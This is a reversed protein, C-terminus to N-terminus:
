LIDKLPLGSHALLSRLERNEQELKQIRDDKAKIFTTLSGIANKLDGNSFSQRSKQDSTSQINPEYNYLEDSVLSKADTLETPEKNLSAFNNQQQKEATGLLSENASIPVKTRKFSNLSAIAKGAPVSHESLYLKSSVIANLNSSKRFSDRRNTSKPENTRYKSNSNNPSIIEELTRV